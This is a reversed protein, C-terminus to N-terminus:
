WICLGHFSDHIKLICSIIRELRKPSIFIVPGTRYITITFLTSVIQVGSRFSKFRSLVSIGSFSGSRYIYSGILKIRWMIVGFSMRCSSDVSIRWAYRNSSFPCQYAYSCEALRISFNTFPKTSKLCLTCSTQPLIFISISRLTRSFHETVSHSSESSISSQGVAYFGDFLILKM